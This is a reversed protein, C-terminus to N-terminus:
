FALLILPPLTLLVTYNGAAAPYKDMLRSLLVAPGLAEIHQDCEKQSSAQKLPKEIEQMYNVCFM